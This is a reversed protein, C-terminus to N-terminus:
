YDHAVHLYYYVRGGRREHRASNNYTSILKKTPKHHNSRYLLPRPRSMSTTRVAWRGRAHLFLNCRPRYFLAIRSWCVSWIALLHKPLRFNRETDIINQPTHSRNLDTLHNEVDLASPLYVPVVEYLQATLDGRWEYHEVVNLPAQLVEVLAIRFRIKQFRIQVIGTLGFHFGSGM